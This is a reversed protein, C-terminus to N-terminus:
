GNNKASRLIEQCFSVFDDLTRFSHAVVSPDFTEKNLM